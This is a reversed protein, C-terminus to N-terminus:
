GAKNILVQEVRGLVRSNSELAEANRGLMEANLRLIEHSDRQVSHCEDSMQKMSTLFAADRKAMFSLVLKTAGYGLIALVALAPTTEIAKMM